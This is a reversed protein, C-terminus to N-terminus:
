AIRIGIKQLARAVSDIPAPADVALMATGAAVAAADLTQFSALLPAAEAPLPEWPFGLPLVGPLSEFDAEGNPSNKWDVFVLTKTPDGPISQSHFPAEPKYLDVPVIYATYGRM